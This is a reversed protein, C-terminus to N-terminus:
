LLEKYNNKSGSLQLLSYYAHLLRPRGEHPGPGGASILQLSISPCFSADCNNGTPSARRISADLIYLLWRAQMGDDYRHFRIIFLRRMMVFIYIINCWVLARGQQNALM